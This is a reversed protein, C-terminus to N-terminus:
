EMELKMDRLIIYEENIRDYIRKGSGNVIDAIYSGALRYFEDEYRVTDASGVATDETAYFRRAIDIVYCQTLTIFREECLGIFKKKIDFLPDAQMVSSYGRSTLFQKKPESKLLIINKGYKESMTKAFRTLMEVSYRMDRKEFLYCTNNEPNIEKYFETKTIYDDVRYLAGNFESVRCILDYFDLLLWKSGSRTVTNVGARTFVDSIMRRRRSDSCFKDTDEPLECPVPEDFALLAPQRFVYKGMHIGHAKNLAGRSITSGWVDVCINRLATTYKKIQPKNRIIFVLESSDEDVPAAIEKSLLKSMRHLIHFKKRFALEYFEYPGNLNKELVAFIIEAAEILEEAGKDEGFFDRVSLLDSCGMKKLRILRSAHEGAFAKSTYAIILDAASNMDLLWNRIGKEAMSDYYKMVRSFWLEVDPQKIYRRGIPETLTCFANYADAFYENEFSSLKKGTTLYTASLDVVAPHVLSIFYDEMERIRQNLAKQSPASSLRDLDAHKDPFSQRFLVVRESPVAKLVANAFDAIRSRWIVDEFPPRLHIFDQKQDRYFKSKLFLKSGTFLNEGLQYCSVGAATYFDVAIYDPNSEVMYSPLSKQLETLLASNHSEPIEYDPTGCAALQSILIGTKDTRFRKGVSFIKRLIPSGSLLVKPRSVYRGIHNGLLTGVREMSEKSAASYPPFSLQVCAGFSKLESYCPIYSLQAEVKGESNRSLEARLIVSDRNEKMESMTTLFNGLSYACPVKRGDETTIYEFKQIVHPHSGIILDAGASAMFRAEEAQAKRILTSNMNGWHQYVVIYEAGMAMAGNILEIFYDRKYQGTVMGMRPFHEDDLGNSLMSCCIFGIRIGNIEKIVPNSGMTGLNEMGLRKIEETTAELGKRGTDCNHNNATVLGDFGADAIASLFSAPSNCNPTGKPLRLLESEYPAGDYCTTELVGVAFDAESITAKINSFADHFDYDLKEADRQQKATCMIDGTFMLVTKKEGRQIRRDVAIKTRFKQKDAIITIYTEGSEVATVKGKTDVVAIDENESVFVAKPVTNQYEWELQASQGKTLCITKQAKLTESIPIFSIKESMEGLLEKSKEQKFACVSVLYETGNKFGFITKGCGQSYRIKICNEPDSAAYYFLKYGDAEEIKDWSTYVSSDHVVAQINQPAEFINSM